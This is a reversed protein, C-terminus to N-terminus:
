VRCFRPRKEWFPRRNKPRGGGSALGFIRWEPPSGCGVRWVLSVAGGADGEVPRNLEEM